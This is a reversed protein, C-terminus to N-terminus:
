DEEDVRPRKTAPMDEEEADKQARQIRCCDLCLQRCGCQATITGVRKCVACKTGVKGTCDVPPRLVRIQGCQQCSSTPVPPLMCGTCFMHGVRCGWQAGTYCRWCKHKSQVLLPDLTRNCYPCEPFSEIQAAYHSEEFMCVMQPLRLPQYLGQLRDLPCPLHIDVYGFLDFPGTPILSIDLEDITPCFGRALELQVDIPMGDRLRGIVRAKDKGIIHQIEMTMHVLKVKILLEREVQFNGYGCVTEKAWQLEMSEDIEELGEKSELTASAMVCTNKGRPAALVRPLIGVPRSAYPLLDSEFRKEHFFLQDGYAFHDDLTRGFYEHPFQEFIMDVIADPVSCAVEDRVIEARVAAM